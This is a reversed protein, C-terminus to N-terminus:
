TYQWTFAVDGRLFIMVQRGDFSQLRIASWTDALRKTARIVAIYIQLAVEGPLFAHYRLHSVDTTMKSSTEGDEGCRLDPTDWRSLMEDLSNNVVMRPSEIMAISLWELMDTAQHRHDESLDKPFTPVKVSTVTSVKAHLPIRIPCHRAIPTSSHGPVKGDLKENKDPDVSSEIQKEINMTTDQLDYFLWTLTENLVNEFAYVM